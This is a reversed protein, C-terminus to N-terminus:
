AEKFYVHILDPITKWVKNASSIPIRINIKGKEDKYKILNGKTESSRYLVVHLVSHHLEDSERLKIIKDNDFMQGDVMMMVIKSFPTKLLTQPIHIDRYEGGSYIYTSKTDKMYELDAVIFASHEVVTKTKLKVPIKPKSITLSMDKEDGSDDSENDSESPHYSEDSDSEEGDSEESAEEHEEIFPPSIVEPIAVMSVEKTVQKKLAKMDLTLQRIIGMLNDIEVEMSKIIKHATEVKKIRDSMNKQLENMSTKLQEVEGIISTNIGSQLSANAVLTNALKSCKQKQRLTCFLLQIMVILSFVTFVSNYFNPHDYTMQALSIASFKWEEILPTWTKMIATGAVM